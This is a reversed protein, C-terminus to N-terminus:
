VAGGGGFGVGGVCVTGGGFGCVGGGVVWVGGAGFGCVGVLGAALAVFLGPTSSSEAVVITPMVM